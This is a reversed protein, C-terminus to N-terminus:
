PDAKELEFRDQHIQHITARNPHWDGPGLFEAAVDGLSRNLVAYAASQGSDSWDARGAFELLYDWQEALLEVLIQALHHNLEHDFDPDHFGLGSWFAQIRSQNWWAQHAEVSDWDIIPRRWNGLIRRALYETMGKTLWVPATPNNMSNACLNYVLTYEMEKLRPPRGTLIMLPYGELIFSNSDLEQSEGIAHHSNFAMGDDEDAFVLLIVKERTCPRTLPGLRTRIEYYVKELYNLIRQREENNGEAFLFFHRSEACCYAGGLENRLQTLWQRNILRWAQNRRERPLHQNIQRELAQWDPHSLGKVVSYKPDIASGELPEPEVLFQDSSLQEPLEPTRFEETGCGDCSTRDDANHRGCYSCAKM